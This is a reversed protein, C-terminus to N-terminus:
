STHECFAQQFRRAVIDDIGQAFRNFRAVYDRGSPTLQAGGGGSGGVQRDVLRVGLGKEMEDTLAEVFYSGGLPDATNAVGSEHAIIQQTRLAIKVAKETPLSLEPM